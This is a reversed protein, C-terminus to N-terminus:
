TVSSAFAFVMQQPNNLNISAPMEEGFAKEIGNMVRTRLAEDRYLGGIYTKLFDIDMHKIGALYLQVAWLPRIMGVLAVGCSAWNAVFQVCSRKALNLPETHHGFFFAIGGVVAWFITEIIKTMSLAMGVFFADRYGSRALAHDCLVEVSKWDREDGINNLSLISAKTVLLFGASNIIPPYFNEKGWYNDIQTNVQDM